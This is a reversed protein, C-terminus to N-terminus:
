SSIHCMYDYIVYALEYRISFLKARRQKELTSKQTSRMNQFTLFSFTQLCFLSYLTLLKVPPVICKTNLEWVAVCLIQIPQRLELCIGLHLLIARQKALWQYASDIVVQGNQQIANRLSALIHSKTPIGEPWPGRQGVLRKAESLSLCFVFSMSVAVVEGRQRSCMCCVPLGISLRSRSFAQDTDPSSISQKAM